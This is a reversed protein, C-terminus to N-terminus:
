KGHRWRVAHVVATILALALVAVTLTLLLRSDEGRGVHLLLDLGLLGALVLALVAAWLSARPNEPRKRMSRGYRFSELDRHWRILVTSIRVPLAVRELAGLVARNSGASSADARTASGM